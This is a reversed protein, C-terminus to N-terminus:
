AQCGRHFLPGSIYRWRGMATTSGALVSSTCAMTFVQLLSPMLYLAKVVPQPTNAPHLISFSIRMSSRRMSLIMSISSFFMYMTTSGWAMPPWIMASHMRRPRCQWM